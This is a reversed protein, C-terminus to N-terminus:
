YNARLENASILTCVGRIWQRDKMRSKDWRKRTTDEFSMEKIALGHKGVLEKWEDIMFRDSLYWLQKGHKDKTESKPKRHIAIEYTVMKPLDYTAHRELFQFNWGISDPVETIWKLELLRREFSKEEELKNDTSM